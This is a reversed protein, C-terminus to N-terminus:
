PNFLNTTINWITVVGIIIGVIGLGIALRLFNKREAMKEITKHLVIHM